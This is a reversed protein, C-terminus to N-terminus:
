RRVAELRRPWVSAMALLSVLLAVALRWDVAVAYFVSVAIVASAVIPTLVAAGLFAGDDALSDGALSAAQRVDDRASPRAGVIGDLIMRRLRDIARAGAAARLASFVLAGISLILALGILAAITAIIFNRRELPIGEFLVFPEEAIREPFAVAIRGFPAESQASFSHGVIADDIALRVLDIGVWLMPIALVVLGIAAVHLALSSKWVFRVPNREM